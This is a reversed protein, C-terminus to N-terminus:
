APRLALTLAAWSWNPDDFGAGVLSFAGPDFAGSTWDKYGVGLTCENNDASYASLFGSLDPSTFTVTSGSGHAAAGMSIIKAGATVPTIAPPNPTMGNIGTATTTTVDIPTSANVGSFVLVALAAACTVDGTPGFTTATDPSGGMFKYAARLSTKVSDNSYLESGILTYETTGDTISLTVDSSSAAGFIAVVLDGAQVSSRLGGSLSSNLAITSTGSTAGAKTATNGGVYFIGSAGTFGAIGTLGPLM